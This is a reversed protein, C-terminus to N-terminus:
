RSMALNLHPKRNHLEDQDREGLCLHLKSILMQEAEVRNKGEVAAPLAAIQTATLTRDFYFATPNFAHKAIVGLYFSHDLARM